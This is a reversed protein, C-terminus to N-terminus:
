DLRSLNPKFHHLHNYACVSRRSYDSLTKAHKESSYVSTAITNYARVRYYYKTAEALGSNTYSTANAGVTAIQTFHAM